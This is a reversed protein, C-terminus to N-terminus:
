RLEGQAVAEGGGSSKCDGEGKRGDRDRGGAPM